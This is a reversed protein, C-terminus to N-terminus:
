LIYQKLQEIFRDLSFDHARQISDDRMAQWEALPTKEIIRRLEAVIEANSIPGDHGTTRILTGTKGEIVTELLGGEAVGIVPVGCAMSEVPSMGFDEDIPIYINATAGQVLRIFEVDSPAPIPHINPATACKALIEDKQPDNKGYTFVLHKDPMEM